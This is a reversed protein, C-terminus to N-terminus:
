MACFVNPRAVPTQPSVCVAVLSRDRQIRFVAPLTKGNPAKGHCLALSGRVSCRVAVLRFTDFPPVRMNEIQAAVKRNVPQPRVADEGTTGSWSCGALVGALAVGLLVSRWM